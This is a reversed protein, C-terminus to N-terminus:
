GSQPHMKTPRRMVRLREFPSKADRTRFGCKTPKGWPTVSSRGGSTKGEGGGHPHDVPNMAVGRVHPRWGRWRSAGAKGLVINKHLPNGVKGVTAWCSLRVKRVEKSQLRMTAFGAAEDKEIVTASTGAARCLQGGRTPALEVNHVVTGLPISSLPLANGLRIPADPGSVVMDGPRLGEPHLIYSHGVSESRILCLDASRNPDYEIREVISPAGAGARRAFDVVRYARKAGGGRHWVSIRGRNDRGGTRPKPATLEKLPKGAWLHDRTLTIRQRLGPTIPRYAKLQAQAALGRALAPRALQALRALPSGLLM